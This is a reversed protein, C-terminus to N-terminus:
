FGSCLEQAHQRFIVDWNHIRKTCESYLFSVPYLSQSCASGDANSERCTYSIGNIVVVLSARFVMWDDAWGCSVRAPLRYCDCRSWEGVDLASTLFVHFKAYVGGLCRRSTPSPFLSLVSQEHIEWCWWFLNQSLEKFNAVIAIMTMMEWNIM